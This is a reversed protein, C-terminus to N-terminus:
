LIAKLQFNRQVHFSSALAVPLLFFVIVQFTRLPTELAQVALQTVATHFGEILAFLGFLVIAFLIFFLAAGKTEEEKDANDLLRETNLLSQNIFVCLLGLSIALESASFTTWALSFSTTILRILGGLFFPSLPFCIHMLFWVKTSPRTSVAVKTM